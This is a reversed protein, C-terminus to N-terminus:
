LLFIDVRLVFWAKFRNKLKQIDQRGGGIKGALAPSHRSRFRESAKKCFGSSDARGRRIQGRCHTIARSPTRGGTSEWPVRRSSGSVRQTSRRITRSSLSSKRAGLPNGM